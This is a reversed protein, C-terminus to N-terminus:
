RAHERREFAHAAVEGLARVAEIDKFAYAALMAGGGPAHVELAFAGVALVVQASGGGGLWLAPSGQMQPPAAGAAQKAAAKARLLVTLLEARHETAFTIKNSKSAKFYSDSSAKVQISFDATDTGSCTVDLLDSAYSWENTVEFTTPNLTLISDPCVCFIRPYKGKWSHKTALFRALYRVGHSRRLPVEKDAPGKIAPLSSNSM